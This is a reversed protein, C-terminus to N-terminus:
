RFEEESDYKKFIIYCGYLFVATLFTRFLFSATGYHGLEYGGVISPIVVLVILGMIAKLTISIYKWFSVNQFCKWLNKM